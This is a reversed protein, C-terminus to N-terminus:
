RIPALSSSFSNAALVFKSMALWALVTVPSGLAAAATGEGQPVGNLSVSVTRGPLEDAQWDATGEGPVWYLNGGGDAIAWRPGAHLGGPVHIDVVEIAPHLTAVAEAAAAEDYPTARPPLDAGMRFGFECEVLRLAEPPTRLAAPSPVVTSSFLPGAIPHDIAFAEQVAKNTMGVKWGVLPEGMAAIYADQVAYAEALTEPEGPPAPDLRAGSRRAAVLTDALAAGDSRPLNM